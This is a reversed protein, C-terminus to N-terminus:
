QVASSVSGKAQDDKASSTVVGQRYKELVVQRRSADAPTSAQPYALDSPNAVMAAINATVACGFNSSPKNGPNFGLNEWTQGCKPLDVAYTQFSVRLPAAPNPGADYRRFRLDADAVGYAQLFNDVQHTAEFTEDSGAAPTEVVIPGSGKAKWHEVLQFLAARQDPSPGQPHPALLVEEPRMTLEAKFQETPTPSEASLSRASACGGLAAVLTLSAVLRLRNSSM